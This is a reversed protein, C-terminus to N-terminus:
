AAVKEPRVFRHFVVTIGTPGYCHGNELDSKRGVWGDVEFKQMAKIALALKKKDGYPRDCVVIETKGEHKWGLRDLGNLEIDGSCGLGTLIKGLDACTLTMELFRIRSSEDTIQISITESQMYRSIEIHGKLKM